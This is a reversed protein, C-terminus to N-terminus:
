RHLLRAISSMWLFLWKRWRLKWPKSEEQTANILSPFLHQHMPAPDVGLFRFGMEWDRTFFHDYQVKLPFFKALLREAALRNILYGGSEAVYAGYRVLAGSSLPAVTKPLGRHSHQLTVVDWQKNHDTILEVLHTRLQRPDFTVDDELILAYAQKSSLFAKLARYHSLSCGIEGVSPGRGRLRKFTKEDVVRNQEKPALARGNVASVRAYRLGLPQLQSQMHQWRDQSEDMNIVYATISHLRPDLRPQAFFTIKGNSFFSAYSDSLISANETYSLLLLLGVAAFFMSLRKSSLQSHADKKEM